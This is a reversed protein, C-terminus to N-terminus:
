TKYKSKGKFDMIGKQENGNEGLEEKYGGGVSAGSFEGISMLCLITRLSLNM